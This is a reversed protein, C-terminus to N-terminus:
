GAATPTACIARRTSPSLSSMPNFRGIWRQAKASNRLVAFRTSASAGALAPERSFVLSWPGLVLPSLVLSGQVLGEALLVDAGGTRPRRPRENPTRHGDATLSVSTGSYERQRAIAPIVEVGVARFMGVSRRMHVGSTVLIVHKVDLSPLMAAVMVAEERTNTSEKEVIIRDPPVGLRVLTEKMTEGAPDEPDDPEILGGSSIVFEPQVLRYVRAAELTREVGIPDLVSLKVDSWDERRYSGSGLLVVVSRGPPVDARTLPHFASRWGVSWPTHFPISAPLPTASSSWPSFSVRHGLSQSSADALRPRCPARRRRRWEVAFVLLPERGEVRNGNLRGAGRGRANEVARTSDLSEAITRIPLNATAPAATRPSIAERM